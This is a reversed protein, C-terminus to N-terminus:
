EEEPVSLLRAGLGFGKRLSKLRFGGAKLVERAIRCAVKMEALLREPPVREEVREVAVPVYRGGLRVLRCLFPRTGRRFLAPGPLTRGTALDEITVTKGAWTARAVTDGARLLARVARVSEKPLDREWRALFLDAATTGDALLVDFPLRPAFLHTFEVEGAATQALAREALDAVAVLPDLARSGASSSSEAVCFLDVAVVAAFVASTAADFGEDEAAAATREWALPPPVDALGRDEVAAPAAKAARPLRAPPPPERRTNKM